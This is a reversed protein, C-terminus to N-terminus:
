SADKRGEVFHRYQMDSELIHSLLWERMYHYAGECDLVGHSAAMSYATMKEVFAAHEKEHAPVQPYGIRQLYDEEAKFHVQTYDFMGSLVDHFKKSTTGDRAAHCDVLQNTLILLKRHQADMEAVGVSFADNWVVKELFQGAAATAAAVPVAAQTGAAERSDPIGTLTDSMEVNSQAPTALLEDDRTLCRLLTAFLEDPNFPKTLFYNMGAEICLAKDEAFANATMAIIPTSRYGALQRIERTADLGNLNPMQMDMLIAAYANKQALAVAEVGDEAADAVLDVAELQMLAVERNVPEDDVILIRHGAYRRRIEAEADVSVATSVAAVEGGRKLKVTFWFTSGVGPTSDAGVGGGMLEALRRTIALGLGTGGYKRTTSNDAQEFACFLRSFAEPSIGIGTDQVEFRLRVSETSEEQMLTRLTISGTETFKIANTAYNLVAQQLRTPDGLLNHPLPANEILLHIGKAKAREALISSVNALLSGILVPAEELELKSAEIKSIDLIDDIVSLLHKASADITDLREAQLPSVGERRLIYAMGIIGNMPTRIEHSMNALFDAKAKGAILARQEAQQLALYGEDFQQIFIAIILASVFCTFVYNYILFWATGEPFPLEYYLNGLSSDLLGVLVLLAAIYAGVVHGGRKGLQLYSGVLVAMLWVIIASGAGGTTFTLLFLASASGANSLMGAEIHNRGSRLRLVGIASPLVGIFLCLGASIWAGIAAYLLVYTFWTSAYALQFAFVIRAQVRM